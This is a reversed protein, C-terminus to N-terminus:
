EAAEPEAAPTEVAPRHREVIVITNSVMDHLGRREENFLMVLYGVGLILGSALYAFYRLVANVPEVPAGNMMRVKLGFLMKGPTAGDAIWFGVSCALGAGIMVGAAAVPNNTTFATVVGVALLILWDVCFAAARIFFGGFHVDSRPIPTQCACAASPSPLESGCEDCTPAQLADERTSGPALPMLQPSPASAAPRPLRPDCEDCYQGGGELLTM